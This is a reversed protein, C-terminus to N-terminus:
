YGNHGYKIGLNVALITAQALAVTQQRADRNHQFLLDSRWRWRSYFSDKGTIVEFPLVGRLAFHPFHIVLIDYILSHLVEVVVPDIAPSKELAHGPCAGSQDPGHTTANWHRTGKGFAHIVVAALASVEAKYLDAVAVHSEILGGIRIYNRGQLRRHVLDVSQGALGLKQQVRAVDAVEGSGFLEIGDILNQFAGTRLVDEKDRAFVIHQVIVPLRIKFAVSLVSLSGSPVAKVVFAHAEDAQDVHQVQLRASQAREAALLEIPHFLIHFMELVARRDDYEGMYGQPGDVGVPTPARLVARLSQGVQLFKAGYGHEVTVDVLDHLFDFAVHSKM